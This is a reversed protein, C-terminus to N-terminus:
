KDFVKAIPIGFVFSTCLNFLGVSWKGVGLGVPFRLETQAKLM